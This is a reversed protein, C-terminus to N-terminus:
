GTGMAMPMNLNANNAFSDRWERAHQPMWKLSPTYRPAGSDNFAIGVPLLDWVNAVCNNNADGPWVCAQNCSTNLVEIFVKASDVKRFMSSDYIAYEFSDKGIFGLEPTYQISDENLVATRGHVPPSNLVTKYLGKLSDNARVDIIVSKNAGTTDRDPFAFQSSVQISFSLLVPFVFLLKSIKM